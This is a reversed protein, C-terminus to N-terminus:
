GPGFVGLLVMGGAVAALWVNILRLWWPRDVFDALFGAPLAFVLFPLASL